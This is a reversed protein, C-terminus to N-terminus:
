ISEEDTWIWLQDMLYLTLKSQDSNIVNQILKNDALQTAVQQVFQQFITQSTIHLCGLKTMAKTSGEGLKRVIEM